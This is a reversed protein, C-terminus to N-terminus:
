SRQSRFYDKLIRERHQVLNHYEKLGRIMRDEEWRMGEDLLLHTYSFVSADFLSPEGAGFFFSDGGLLTSLAAFASQADNYVTEVDITAAHKSLEEAAASRLQHAISARM